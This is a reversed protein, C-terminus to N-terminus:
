GKAGPTFVEVGGSRFAAMLEAPPEADSIFWDARALEAVQAFLRRGFKTSDALVAVRNAREMMDRMMAADELNSTLYGDDATM